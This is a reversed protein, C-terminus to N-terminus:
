KYDDTILELQSQLINYVQENGQVSYHCYQGTNKKWHKYFNILKPFQYLDDWEFHTIHLAPLQTTLQDIAACCSSHVFRYYELDFVLNFYDCVSLSIPTKKNEADAFIIDSKRYLHDKDYLPNEECHVRYPSTHSIIILDYLQLNQSKLQQLIKYEGVGPQSINTVDYMNRLLVPWGTNGSLQTSSFSDGCILLKKHTIVEM